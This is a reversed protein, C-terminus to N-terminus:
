MSRVVDRLTIGLPTLHNEVMNSTLEHDPTTDMGETGLMEALKKGGKIALDKCYGNIAAEGGLWERFDLAIHM